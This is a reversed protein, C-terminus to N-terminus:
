ASTRLASDAQHNKDSAVAWGSGVVGRDLALIIPCAPGALEDQAAGLKKGKWNAALPMQSAPGDQQRGRPLSM